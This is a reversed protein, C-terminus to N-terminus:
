GLMSSDQNNLVFDDLGSIDFMHVVIGGLAALILNFRM